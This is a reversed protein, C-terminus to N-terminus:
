VGTVEGLLEGLYLIRQLSVEAVGDVSLEQTSSPAPLGFVYM